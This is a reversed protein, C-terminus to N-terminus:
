PTETARSVAQTLIGADRTGGSGLSTRQAAATDARIVMHAGRAPVLQLDLVKEERVYKKRHLSFQAHLLGSLTTPFWGLSVAPNVAFYDHGCRLPHRPM